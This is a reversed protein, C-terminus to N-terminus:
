KRATDIRNRIYSVDSNIGKISQKIASVDKELEIHNHNIIEPEGTTVKIIFTAVIILTGLYAAVIDFRTKKDNIDKM